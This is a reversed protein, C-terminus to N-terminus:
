KCKVKSAAFYMALAGLSRIALKQMNSFSDVSEVYGFARYSDSLSGCINPYLLAALDDAAFKKWRQAGESENFQQMTMVGTNQANLDLSNNDDGTHENEKGKNHDDIWRMELSNQVHPFNLISDLIKESGNVQKEDIM